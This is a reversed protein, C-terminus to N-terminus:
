AVSVRKGTKRSERKISARMLRATVKPNAKEHQIFKLIKMLVEEEHTLSYKGKKGSKEDFFFRTLQDQQYYNVLDPHVYYNKCVAVTNGLKRSVEQMADSVTKKYAALTTCANAQKLLGLMMLTGAWTRFDKTTFDQDMCAKIYQNVQGSDVKRLEGTDNYYQFLESGPIARCQKIIRAFKKNKLTIKQYIGKKGKFSFTVTTGKVAVHKNKLTTLGYSGYQKEYGDNGVRIYTREMLSVVMALVKSEPFGAQSLDKELRKRLAPLSKGFEYMRHFKTERQLAAWRPHYRYQKRGAIDFGTAQIHGNASRCIWVRTWAPPIVLKKIRELEEADDIAHGKDTYIFGKGKKTRAIGPQSDSVYILNAASAATKYDKDIKVFDRHSLAPSATIM